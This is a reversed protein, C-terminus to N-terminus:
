HEVTILYVDRENTDILAWLIDMNNEPDNKTMSVTIKENKILGLLRKIEENDTAKSGSWISEISKALMDRNSDTVKVQGDLNLKINEDYSLEMVRTGDAPFGGIDDYIIKYNKTHPIDVSWKENVRSILGDEYIKNYVKCFIGLSLIFIFVFICIGKLIKRKM